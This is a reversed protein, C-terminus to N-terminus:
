LYLKIIKVLIRHGSVQAQWSDQGAVGLAHLPLCHLSRQVHGGGGVPQKPRRLDSDEWPRFTRFHIPHIISPFPWLGTSVSYGWGLPARPPVRHGTRGHAACATTSIMPRWQHITEQSWWSWTASLLGVHAPPPCGAQVGCVVIKGARHQPSERPAQLVCSNIQTPISPPTPLTPHCGGIM